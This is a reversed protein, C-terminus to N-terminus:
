LDSRNFRFYGFVLPIVIWAFLIVLAATPQEYVAPESPVMAFGVSDIGPVASILNSFATIPNLAAIFEVWTPTTEPYEFGSVVYLALMPLYSWLQFVFVVYAGFAAFSARTSTRTVSSIAVAISTFAAILVVFALTTAVLRQPDIVVGMAFAIPVAVLLAALTSATIVISRGLFTGLIVTQRSFPLGLIVTLAGTSRKEVLAPAVLGLAVLPILLSLATLLQPVLEIEVSTGAARQASRGASYTLGAALLVFLAGVVHAQRERVADRVDERAFLALRGVPSDTM